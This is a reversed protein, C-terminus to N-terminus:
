KQQAISWVLWQAAIQNAWIKGTVISFLSNSRSQRWMNEQYNSFRSRNRRFLKEGCCQTSSFNDFGINKVERPKVSTKCELQLAWTRQASRPSHYYFLLTCAALVFIWYLQSINYNILLNFCERFKPVNMRQRQKIANSFFMFLVM